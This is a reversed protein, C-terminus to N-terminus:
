KTLLYYEVNYLTIKNKEYYCDARKIIIKKNEIEITNNKEFCDQKNGNICNKIKEKIMPYNTKKDSNEIVIKFNKYGEVSINEDENNYYYSKSEQDINKILKTKESETLNKDILNRGKEYNILYNYAGITKTTIKNTEKYEILYKYQNTISLDYCNIFPVILSIFLEIIIVYTLLGEDKKIIHFITYVIEFIICAIGLYRSITLGNNLIRVGLSYCQLIIFPIFLYPLIKHIKTLLKNKENDM